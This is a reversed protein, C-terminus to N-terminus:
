GFANIRGALAETLTELSGPALISPQEQYLGLGYRDRPLLYAVQLAGAMPSVLLRRDAFRRRLETQLASYPEGGCTVWVADGLRHVSYPLPYTEGPPMDAVRAIWRRAREAMAGADRAALLDGRAEAERQRRLWDALEARMAEPDPASRYPLAVTGTEGAFVATERRRADDHTRYAWVGLTAGSVVPGTYHFDAGPPGLSALAALAAHGLLRGNQDAIAPDGQFGHRPGLDGCAGQFYVCPAGTAREVEERMAGVFDPSLVTCEWALTTPHCAYNVVTGIAAGDAATIRAVVLTDDAPADPNFGCVYGGEADDRYDRDAALDCRGVAYSITAERLEAVARSAVRRLKEALEALYPRILEGGPLTFRDPVFWGASHSHSFTLVVDAEGVGAGGAISRVMEAHQERVLGVLDTQVRVVTRDAGGLPALALAEATVPRHVGTAVDHTAAGWLRHYIGVPPTIDVRALGVRLRSTPVRVVRTSM